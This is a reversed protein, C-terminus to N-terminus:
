SCRLPLRIQSHSILLVEKNVWTGQDLGAPDALPRFHPREGVDQGARHDAFVAVNAIMGKDLVVHGDPVPDRDLRADLDPVSHDDLIVDKDAGVNGKGVVVEGPTFM